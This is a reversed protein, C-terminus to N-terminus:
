TIKEKIKQWKPGKACKESCYKKPKNNLFRGVLMGCAGCPTPEDSIERRKKNNRQKYFENSCEKSCYKNPKGTRTSTIVPGKCFTCQSM